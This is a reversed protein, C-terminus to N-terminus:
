RQRGGWSAATDPGALHEPESAVRSAWEWHSDPSYPEGVQHTIGGRGGIRENSYNKKIHGDTEDNLLSIDNNRRNFQIAINSNKIIVLNSNFGHIM